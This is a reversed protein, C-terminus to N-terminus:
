LRFRRQLKPACAYCTTTSRFIDDAGSGKRRKERVLDAWSSLAACQLIASKTFAALRPTTTIADKLSPALAIVFSISASLTTLHCLPLSMCAYACPSPCTSKATAGDSAYDSTRVYHDSWMLLPDISSAISDWASANSQTANAQRKVVRASSIDIVVRLMDCGYHLLRNLTEWARICCEVVCGVVGSSTAMSRMDDFECMLQLAPLAMVVAVAVFSVDSIFSPALSTFAACVFAHTSTEILLSCLHPYRLVSHAISNLSACVVPDPLWQWMDLTVRVVDEDGARSTIAWNDM